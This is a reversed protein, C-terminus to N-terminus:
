DMKRSDRYNYTSALAFYSDAPYAKEIAKLFRTKVIGAVGLLLVHIPGENQLVKLPINKVEEYGSIEAFLKEERKKQNFFNIKSLFKIKKGGDKSIHDRFAAIAEDSFRVHNKVAMMRLKDDVDIPIHFNRAVFGERMKDKQTMITNCTWYLARGTFRPTQTNVTEKRGM